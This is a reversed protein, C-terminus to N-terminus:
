AARVTRCGGVGASSAHHPVETLGSGALPHPIGSRGAQRQQRGGRAEGQRRAPGQARVPQHQLRPGGQGRDLARVERDGGVAVLACCALPTHPLCPYTPLYGVCSSGEMKHRRSRVMKDAHKDIVPIVLLHQMVSMFHENCGSEVASAQVAKCLQEADSLNLEVGNSGTRTAETNDKLMVAEFVQEAGCWRIGTLGEDESARRHNDTLTHPARVQIQVELEYREDSMGGEQGQYDIPANKLGDVQELIGAYLLDARILLREDLSAASNILTNIFLMVDRKYCMPQEESRLSNVLCLFRVSEEKERQVCCMCLPTLRRTQEDGTM